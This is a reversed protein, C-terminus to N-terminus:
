LPIQDAQGLCHLRFVDISKVAEASLNETDATVYTDVHAEVVATEHEQAKELMFPLIELSYPSSKANYAVRSNHIGQRLATTFATVTKAPLDKHAYIAGLPIMAGTKKEYWDGLDEILALGERAYVFRGEHILVAADIENRRLAPLIEFFPMQRQTLQMAPHVTKRYFHFLRHATTNEGPLALRCGDFLRGVLVPGVGRGIAAGVPLLDYSGAIRDVLSFSGKSIPFKAELLGLNLEEIDLYHLRYAPNHRLSCFAFTDNPCPSIAVDIPSGPQQM